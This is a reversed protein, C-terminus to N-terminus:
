ESASTGGEIRLQIDECKKSVKRTEYLLTIMDIARAQGKLRVLCECFESLSIEGDACDDDSGDILDFLPGVEWVDVGLISLYKRLIPSSLASLFESRTIAGNGNEDVREFVEGLQERYKMSKSKREEMQLLADGSANELTEKLFLATIIRIIAFVVGTIYLVFVVTYAPSVREILPRAYKPWSGSHTVEFMTYLAKGFSGYHVNVWQRLELDNSTDAIFAHLSQCMTLATVVKCIFLFVMSWFLSAISAVCATVLTRLPLYMKMTRAIRLLRALRAIKTLMSFSGISNGSGSTDVLRLLMAVATLMVGFADIINFWQWGLMTDHFFAKRLFVFRLVLDSLYYALFVYEIAELVSETSSGWSMHSVDLSADALSGLWEAEVVMVLTNLIAAFGTYIDLDTSVFRFCRDWRSQSVQQEPASNYRAELRDVQSFKNKSDGRPPDDVSTETAGAVTTGACDTDGESAGAAETQKPLQQQGDSQVKPPPQEKAVDAGGSSVCEPQSENANGHRYEQPSRHRDSMTSWCADEASVRSESAIGGGGLIHVGALLEPLDRIANKTIDQAKLIQELVARHDRLTDNVDKVHANFLEEFSSKTLITENDNERCSQLM